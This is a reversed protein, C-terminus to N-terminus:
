GDDRQRDRRRPSRGTYLRFFLEVNRQYQELSQAWFDLYAEGADTISYVRRAPGGSNTTDWESECLGDREMHRLTRYLTGPNMAVFGFAAAQEMLKYGYSTCERLTLLIVPVLWNRPWVEIRSTGRLQHEGRHSNSEKDAVDVERCRRDEDRGCNVIADLLTTPRV